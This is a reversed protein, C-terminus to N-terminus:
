PSSEDKQYAPMDKIKYLIHVIETVSSVGMKKLVNAKHKEMTRYSISMSNAIQKGTQGDAILQFIQKERRTLRDYLRLYEYGDADSLIGDADLQSIAYEIANICREKDFPKELYDCAGLKIVSVAIEIDGYASIIVVPHYVGKRRILEMAEIGCIDPM